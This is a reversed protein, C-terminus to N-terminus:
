IVGTQSSLPIDTKLAIKGSPLPIIYPVPIAHKTGSQQIQRVERGM